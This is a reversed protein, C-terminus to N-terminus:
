VSRDIPSAPVVGALAAIASMRWLRSSRLRPDRDNM